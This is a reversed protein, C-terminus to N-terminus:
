RRSSKATRFNASGGSRYLSFAEWYLADPAYSSRPYRTTIAHFLTAARAYDNGSLSRRAARYLSDAPDAPDHAAPPLQPSGEVQQTSRLALVREQAVGVTTAAVTALAAIWIANRRM